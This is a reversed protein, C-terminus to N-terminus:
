AKVQNKNRPPGHLMCKKDMIDRIKPTQLPSCVLNPAGVKCLPLSLLSRANMNHLVIKTTQVLGIEIIEKEHM